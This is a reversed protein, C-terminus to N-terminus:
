SRMLYEFIDNFEAENNYKVIFQGSGNSKKSLKFHFGTREELKDQFIKTKSDNKSEAAERGPTLNSMKKIFSELDRVSMNEEVCKDAFRKAKESDKLSALVKAHGFSIKEQQLFSIVSRPLKLIRLFNAVTSRDKGVKKAVEEQTLKFEEMLQYYALAEEVCNLECRQVNEILAVVMKDKETMNRVVVPVKGIAALKAARLRREGAVLHFRNGAKEVVLPQIIGNEKISDSLEKLEKEKFIKRPQNPNTDIISVDVMYPSGFDASPKSTPAQASLGAPAVVNNASSNTQILSALGKGLASKKNKAQEPKM